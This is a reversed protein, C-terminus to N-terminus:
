KKGWIANLADKLQHKQIHDWWGGFEFIAEENKSSPFDNLSNPTTMTAKPHMGMPCYNTNKTLWWKNRPRWTFRSESPRKVAKRIIRAISRAERPMKIIPEKTM